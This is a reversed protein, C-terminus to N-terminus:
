PYGISKLYDDLLLVSGACNAAKAADIIEGDGTVLVLPAGGIDHTPGISFCLMSDWVFNWRKRKTSALNPPQTTAIKQLLTTMLHFPVPFITRVAKVMANVDDQSSLKYGVKAAHTVVIFLAWANMFSESAFFGRVKKLVDQDTTGSFFAKSANPDCTKLVDGMQKLWDQEKAAVVKSILDINSIVTTDTISPANKVFYLVLSGLNELLKTHDDPTLHFLERCVTSEADAFITIGSNTKTRDVTHEGLVVLSNLCHERAPDKPDDLHAVLEWIVVPSALVFIGAAEERQRLRGAIARCDALTQKATLVRYANTDFIIIRKTGAPIPSQAESPTAM